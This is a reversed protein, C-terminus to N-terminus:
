RGAGASDPVAGGTAASDAATSDGVAAALRVYASDGEVGKM